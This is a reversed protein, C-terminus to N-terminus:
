ELILGTINYIKKMHRLQSIADDLAKHHVGVRELEMTPRLGKVTRYCRNNYFRWPIEIGLKKYAAELIANDFSAGNGWIYRVDYSSLWDSFEPLVIEPGYRGCFAADHAVKNQQLWWRMTDENDSFGLRQSEEYSIAAEFTSLETFSEDFAVAGITLIACGPDVGTTELDVM